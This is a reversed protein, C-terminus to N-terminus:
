RIKGVTSQLAYHVSPTLKGRWIGDGALKRASDIGSLTTEEVHPAACHSGDLTVPVLRKEAKMLLQPAADAGQRSRVGSPWIASNGVTTANYRGQKEWSPSVHTYRRM